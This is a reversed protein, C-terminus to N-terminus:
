YIPSRTLRPAKRQRQEVKKGRLAIKGLFFGRLIVATFIGTVSTVFATKLGELLGPISGDIDRVDFGWLGYLIGAFTGFIGLITAYNPIFARQPKQRLLIALIISGFFIVASYGLAINLM